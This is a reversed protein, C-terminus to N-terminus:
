RLREYRRVLDLFEARLGFTDEGIASKARSHVSEVSSESIFRSDTIILGFEVVASAFMFNNSVYSQLAETGVTYEILMSVDGDPEKYRIKVTMYEDSGTTTVESYRLPDVLGADDEAAGVPILEFFATVNHGSGIDGADKTDDNFDENELRRTDYGILRYASVVEPNFEVQFKVDKAITFMTSDFEDVLVKKAEQINDIYAYNGNGNTAIAEMITDKLNGMGYGLVSIFVGKDRETEVLTIIDAVSSEGVNFDGDTALIIRNNGDEIFNKEALAYANRLAQAGSTSGAARLDKLIRMLYQKESGPVSDALIKDSGAYTIISIRDNDNLQEVLLKMSEIVLPLRNPRNMSGSVDILFVVNNAIEETNQLRKGQIGIKALLHGPAWPAPNIETIISFPHESGPAPAPYDYDFYNILEEIRMGVPLSGNMIQRRMISYSATDVSASFTSLPSTKVDKFPSEIAFAFEDTEDLPAFRWDESYIGVDEDFWTDFFEGAFSDEPATPPPDYYSPSADGPSPLLNQIFSDSSGCGAILTLAITIIILISVAKKM